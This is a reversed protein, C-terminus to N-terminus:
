RVVRAKEAPSLGPWVALRASVALVRANSAADFSLFRTCDGALAAAVHMTDMSGVTLRPAFRDLLAVAKAAVLEWVVPQRLWREGDFRAQLREWAESDRKGTLRAFVGRCELETLEGVVVPLSHRRMFKEALGSNASRFHLGVVFNTDAYDM